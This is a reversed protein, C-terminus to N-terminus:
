EDDAEEGYLPGDIIQDFRQLVMDDTVLCQEPADEIVPTSNLQCQYGEGDPYMIEYWLLEGGIKIKVFRSM